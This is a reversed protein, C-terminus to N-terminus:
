DFTHHYVWHWFTINQEPLVDTQMDDWCPRCIDNPNQSTGCYGCLEDDIDNVIFAEADCEPCVGSGILMAGCACLPNPYYVDTARRNAFWCYVTLIFNRMLIEKSQITWWCLAGIAHAM